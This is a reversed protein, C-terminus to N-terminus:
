GPRLPARRLIKLTGGRADRCANITLNLLAQQLIGDGNIRV